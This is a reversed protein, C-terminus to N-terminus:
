GQIAAAGIFAEDIQEPTLGLGAGLAQMLPSDRHWEAAHRWANRAVANGAEAAAESAALLGELELWAKAKWAAIAAPVPPPAVVPPAIGWTRSPEAPAVQSAAFAEHPAQAHWALNVHYRPDIVEGPIPIGGEALTAPGILAGILDLAVGHPLSPDQGPPCDWGAAACAALFGARNTFRHYTTIWM